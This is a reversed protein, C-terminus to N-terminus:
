SGKLEMSLDLKLNAKTISDFPIMVAGSNKTGLVIENENVEEIVGVFVKAGDVEDKSKVRALKGKFRRFDEISLLDRELGPSSVELVYKTPIIDDADLRAEVARSVEACHEITLGDAKDIFIRVVPSRKTGGIESRVFEFRGDEALERAILGVQENIRTLDM